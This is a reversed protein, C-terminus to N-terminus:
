AGSGGFPRYLQSDEGYESDGISTIPFFCSFTPEADKQVPKKRFLSDLIWPNAREACGSLLKTANTPEV